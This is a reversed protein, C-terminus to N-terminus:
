FRIKDKTLKHLLFIISGIGMMYYFNNLMYDETITTDSLIDAVFILYFVISVLSGYALLYLTNIIKFTKESFFYKKFKFYIIIWISLNIGISTISYIKPPNTGFFVFLSIYGIIYILFIKLLNDYNKM